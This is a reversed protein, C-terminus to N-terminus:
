GLEGRDVVSQDRRLRGDGVCPRVVVPFDRHWDPWSGVDVHVEIAWNVSANPCYFSYPADSPMRFSVQYSSKQGHELGSGDTPEIPVAAEHFRHVDAHTADGDNLLVHEYGKLVATVGKPSTKFNPQLEVVFSVHDGPEVQYDDPTPEYMGSSEEERRRRMLGHGSVGALGLCGVGALLTLWSAGPQAAVNPYVLLIGVFLLILTGLLWLVREAGSLGGTSDESSSSTDGVIFEREEGSADVGFKEEASVSPADEIHAEACLYWDVSLLHGHYTYPGPPVHFIFPYEYTGAEDWSGEFLLIEDNGGSRPRARGSTRWQRKLCVSADSRARDVKVHVTGVIKDGPEFLRRDGDFETWVTCDSVDVEEGPVAADV